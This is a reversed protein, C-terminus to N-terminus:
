LDQPRTDYYESVSGACQRCRFEVIRAGYVRTMGIPERAEEPHGCLLVNLFRWVSQLYRMM